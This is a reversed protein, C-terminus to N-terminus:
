RFARSTLASVNLVSLATGDGNIAQAKLPTFEDCYVVSPIGARIADRTPKNCVIEEWFLTASGLNSAGASFASAPDSTAAAKSAFQIEVVLNKTLKSGDWLTQGRVGHDLPQMLKESHWICWPTILPIMATQANAAAANGWIAKLKTKHDTDRCRNILLPVLESPRYDYFQTGGARYTIKDILRMAAYPKYTQGELAPLNLVLTMEGCIQGHSPVEFTQTNSFNCANLCTIKNM